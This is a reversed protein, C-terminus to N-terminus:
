LAVLSTEYMRHFLRDWYQHTPDVTQYGAELEQPLNPTLLITALRQRYREEITQDLFIAEHSHRPNLGVLVLLDANQVRFCTDHTVRVALEFERKARVSASADANPTALEALGVEKVYASLAFDRWPM